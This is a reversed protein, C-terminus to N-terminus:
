PIEIAGNHASMMQGEADRVVLRIAYAGPKVDLNSRLTIGQAIRSQLTADRVQLTLIKQVATVYNGNRDFLGSTITLENYNRGDAKRFRLQTLDIRVLVTLKAADAGTRFFQTHLETPLDHIEERSFLAEEIERRAQEAADGLHTPAYYGRRAQVTLKAPDKLTVKLSHFGGDLKLNQPSFGLVYVFEPAAALRKLGADFDNSNQVFSGGTGEALEAMVGAALLATTRDYDDKRRQANADFSRKSVDAFSVPAYLGRADLASVVVNSRIARDIIDTIEQSANPALFGPSVLIINRRGAIASLRRVADKVAGLTIRSETDSANWVRRAAARAMIEALRSMAAAAAGTPDNKSTSDAALCALAESKAVELAQDDHKDVILDAQYYSVDPCEQARSAAMSRPELRLLTERLKARDDTFDLMTQGSTSFIAARDGAELATELHRSAADRSRALDAFSMHVDDFLYATFREPAALPQGAPAAGGSKEVSFTSITQAKGKDFIQFDEKRLNGAARGERDRVVVPVLVVNVRSKFSAPADRQGVEPGAPEQAAACLGCLVIAAIKM